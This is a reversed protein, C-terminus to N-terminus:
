TCNAQGVPGVREYDNYLEHDRAAEPWIVPDNALGTLNGYGIGNSYLAM